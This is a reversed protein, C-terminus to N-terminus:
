VRVLAKLNLATDRNCIFDELTVPQHKTAWTYQYENGEKDADSAEEESVKERLRLPKKKKEIVLGDDELITKEANNIENDSVIKEVEDDAAEPVRERLPKEEQIVDDDTILDMMIIEESIAEEIKSEQDSGSSERLPKEQEIELSADEEPVLELVTKDDVQIAAASEVKEM